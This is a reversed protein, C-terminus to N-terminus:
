QSMASDTLSGISTQSKWKGGGVFQKLLAPPKLRVPGSLAPQQVNASVLQADIAVAATLGAAVFVLAAVNGGTM